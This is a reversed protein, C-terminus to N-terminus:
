MKRRRRLMAGGCGCSSGGCYCVFLCFCVVSSIRISDGSNSGCSDDGGDGCCVVAEVIMVMLGVMVVMLVAMVVVLLGLLVALVIVVGWSAAM